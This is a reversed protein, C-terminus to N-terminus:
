AQQPPTLNSAGGRWLAADLQVATAGVSLMDDVDQPTYIGGAAIIPLELTSLRSVAAISQPYMAPGYLRGSVLSGNADPLIGRAPALSLANIGAQFLADILAHDIHASCAQEFPIRVIIALEGVAAMALQYALAPEVDPPLGMEIGLIGPTGELMQVM